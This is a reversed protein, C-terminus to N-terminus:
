EADLSVVENAIAMVDDDHTVIVVTRGDRRM